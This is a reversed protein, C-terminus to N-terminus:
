DTSSEDRFYVTVTTGVNVQTGTAIDQDYAKSVMSGTNINGSYKINLGNAAATNNAEAPTM